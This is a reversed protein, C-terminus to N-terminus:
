TNLISDRCKSFKLTWFATSQMESFKLKLCKGPSAQGPGGLFAGEIVFDQTRRQKRDPFKSRGFLYHFLKSYLNFTNM